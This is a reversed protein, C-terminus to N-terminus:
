KRLMICGVLDFMPRTCHTIDAVMVLKHLQSRSYCVNDYMYHLILLRKIPESWVLVVPWKWPNGIGHDWVLM